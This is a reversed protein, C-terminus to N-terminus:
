DTLRYFRFLDHEIPLIEVTRFGAEAAYRRLTEPRMVTGTGASPQEALGAPLCCFVSFGYFLREIDDGPATFTEAVREDVILMTGGDGLLRRATRLVEVPRSLDHVCEFATVLDYRGALTPDGADRAHFRVRDAVSAEIANTRAMEISPGDNDFGDVLVNPYAQAIAISSWGAGCGIDAVRAPTGARLRAEIDPAAPLWEAALQKFFMPRNLAAQAERADAGFAQWSVGGGHRYAEILAPLASTLGAAFRSLPAAYSLSLPDLLVERHGSPLRYRRSEAAGEAEEMSLIGTVAQQELWERVSREHTGTAAALEPPTASDLDALARYLGLQDGLYVSLVDMTAITSEFLRGAFTDRQETTQEAREIATM